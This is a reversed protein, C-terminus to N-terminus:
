SEFGLPEASGDTRLTAVSASGRAQLAKASKCTIGVRPEPAAAALFPPSHSATVPSRSCSGYGCLCTASRRDTRSDSWKQKLSSSNTTSLMPVPPREIPGCRIPNPLRPIPLSGESFRTQESLSCAISCVAQNHAWCHRRSAHPAARSRRPRRMEHEKPISRLGAM